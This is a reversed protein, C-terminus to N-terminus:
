KFEILMKIQNYRKIRDVCLKWPRCLEIFIKNILSKKKVLNLNNTQIDSIEDELHHKQICCAPNLQFIHGNIQTNLLTKFIVHDTPENYKRLESIICEAGDRSIIYAGTGFHLSKLFNLKGEKISIFKRSIWLKRQRWTELKVVFTNRPIWNSVSSILSFFRDSFIIDDELVCCFKHDSKIFLNLSKIHSSINAIEYKNLSKNYNLNELLDYNNGDIAKILTFDLGKLRDIMEALRDPRRKLNILLVLCKNNIKYRM